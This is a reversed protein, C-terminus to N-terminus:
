QSSSQFEADIVRADDPENENDGTDEGDPPEGAAEQRAAEEREAKEIEVAREAMEDRMAMNWLRIYDVLSRCKFDEEYVAFRALTSSLQGVLVNFIGLEETYDQLIGAKDEEPIDGTLRGVAADIVKAVLAGAQTGEPAM